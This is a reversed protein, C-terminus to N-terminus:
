IMWRAVPEMGALWTNERDREILGRRELTKGIREAMQEVLATLEIATPAPLQRFV